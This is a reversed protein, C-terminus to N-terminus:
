QKILDGFELEDEPMPLTFVKRPNEIEAASPLVKADTRKLFYFFQGEALFSKRYEKQLEDKFVCQGEKLDMQAPISYNNRVKNLAKLGEEESGCCEAYIYYMENMRVLPVLKAKQYKTILYVSTSGTKTGTWTLVRSDDTYKLAEFIEERRTDTETFIGSKDEKEAFFEDAHNQIKDSYLSFLPSVVGLGQTQILEDALKGAEVTNGAYLYVRALLAKVAYYNMRERRKEFFRDSFEDKGELVWPDSEKLIELAIKCDGIIRETAQAVTLQPFPKRVLKDVYPIAPLTKGEAFSPAYMRLLDFHLYARVGLMEGKMVPYHGTAFLGESGELNELLNNCNMIIRYMNKWFLDCFSVVTASEYDYSTVKYYSMTSPIDYYKALIDMFGMTLESGYLQSSAMSTYVGFMATQFGAEDKFLDENKVQSKPSVDLWSECAALSFIMWIFLIKKM